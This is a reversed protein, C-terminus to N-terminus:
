AAVSLDCRVGNGAAVVRAGATAVAPSGTTPQPVGRSALITTGAGETDERALAASNVPRAHGAQAAAAGPPLALVPVRAAHPSSTHLTCSIHM